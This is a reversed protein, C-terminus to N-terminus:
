KKTRKRQERMELFVNDERLYFLNHFINLVITTCDDDIIFLYKEMKITELALFM